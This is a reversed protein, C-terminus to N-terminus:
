TLFLFPSALPLLFPQRALVPAFSCQWHIKKTILTDIMAAGALDRDGRPKMYGGVSESGIFLYPRFSSPSPRQFNGGNQEPPETGENECNRASRAVIQVSLFNFHALFLFIGM